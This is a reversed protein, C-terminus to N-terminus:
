LSFIIWLCECISHVNQFSYSHFLEKLWAPHKVTQALFVSSIGLEQIFYYLSQFHSYLTKHTLIIRPLRISSWPSIPKSIRFTCLLALSTFSSPHNLWLILYLQFYLTLSAISFPIPLPTNCTKKLNTYMRPHFHFRWCFFFFLVLLQCSGHEIECVTQIIGTNIHSGHRM